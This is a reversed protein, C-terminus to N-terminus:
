GGGWERDGPLAKMLRAMVAAGSADPFERITQARLARIGVAAFGALALATLATRIGDAAGSLFYLGLIAGLGLYFLLPLRRLSPALLRRAETASARASALWGAALFLGGAVVATRAIEALLSTGISWAAEAAPEADGNTVLQDLLLHGAVIRLLLVALGATVLGAGVLFVTAGRADRSLYIALAFVALTLLSLILALGKIATVATEASSLQDSHVIEIQAAGAPLKEVVSQDVGLQEALNKLLNSLNLTVDGGGTGVFENKDELVELLEEHATRNAAEWLTQAVSTELAAEAGGEALGEAGDALGGALEKTVGPLVSELEAEVDVNEYLKEVLFDSVAGRIRSNELMGSSTHVWDDTNLAQREIWIAFVSFFALLAGLAVLAKAARRRGAPFEPQFLRTDFRRRM